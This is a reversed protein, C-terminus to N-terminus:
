RDVVARPRGTGAGRGGGVAVVTATGTIDVVSKDEVEKFTRFTTPAYRGDTMLSQSVCHAATLIMLRAGRRVITGSCASQGVMTDGAYMPTSLAVAPAVVQQVIKPSIDSRVASLGVVITLALLMARKM